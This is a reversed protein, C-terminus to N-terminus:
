APYANGWFGPVAPRDWWRTWMWHLIGPKRRSDEEHGGSAQERVSFPVTYWYTLVIGAFVLITIGLILMERIMSKVETDPWGCQFIIFLAEKRATRFTFDMQKILHQSEGDLYIGGQLDGEDYWVQAAPRMHGGRRSQQQRRLVSITDGKECLWIHM